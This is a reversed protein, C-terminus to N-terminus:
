LLLAAQTLATVGELELAIDAVGDGDIDGEVIIGGGDRRFRLEGAKGGFDDDGIFSFTAVGGLDIRDGEAADFDAIVHRDGGAHMHQASLFVFRDAGDGGGFWQRKGTGATLVDNGGDGWVWALDDAGLTIRDRHTSGSIAEINRVTERNGFGDDIIQRSALSLDVEVGKQSKSWHHFKVVDIGGGGDYRDVGELGNFANDNDDGRFRDNRATGSIEEINAFRDLRGFGDKVTGAAFDAVIGRNGKFEADTNYRLTDYGGRGNIFDKGGMGHFIEDRESGLMRDDFKSGRYEEFNRIRDRGGWPNVVTGKEADLRIGRRGSDLYYTETFWLNDWGSGGNYSNNGASAKVWDDGEGARVRDNGPNRGFILDDGHASGVFTNSKPGILDMVAWLGYQFAQQLKGASISFRTITALQGGDDDLFELKRVTGGVLRGGSLELAAGSVVLRDGDADTFTVSQRSPKSAKFSPMDFTDTLSQHEGMAEGFVIKAM